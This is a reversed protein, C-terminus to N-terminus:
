SIASAHAAISELKGELETLFDPLGPQTTACAPRSSDADLVCCRRRGRPAQDGPVRWASGAPRDTARTACASARTPSRSRRAATWRGRDIDRVEIVRGRLRAGTAAARRCRGRRRRAARVPLVLYVLAERTRRPPGCRRRVTPADEPISFPTGDPLRGRGHRLGVKGTTLLGSNLELERSAGPMASSTRSSARPRLGEVWRDQQQFHQTRLFMGESWVRDSGARESRATLARRRWSCAPRRAEAELLTTQNRPVEFLARWQATGIDRYAAMVGIFARTTTSSASGSRSGGPALVFEDVGECAGQGLGAPPIM